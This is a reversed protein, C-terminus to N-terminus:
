HGSFHFAAHCGRRAHRRFRRAHCLGPPRAPGHRNASELRHEAHGAFLLCPPTGTGGLCGFPAGTGQNLNVVFGVNAASSISTSSYAVLALNTDPDVGISYPIPAPSAQGQLAGSIDVTAATVPNPAGPIPVISVSQSGYNVVAVSHNTRNVSLGTPIQGVAVPGGIPTLTGPAISYFQVANAGTLAVVVVGLQPDIDMASPNAGTAVPAGATPPATSYDPFVAVTSVSPNNPAPLPPATRSVTLPYLGPPGAASAPFFTSLRRSNSTTGQPVQNGQFIATALTGGPGFYGGDITVPFQSQNAGQVVSTPFTSVVTPRVPVVNVVFNGGAAPTVPQGPDTVSVTYKSVTSPLDAELLRVRAGTSPPNPTTTNPIPFLVKVQGSVSTFSKQGGNQDTFTIISASSINPADLYVDWLAAGQPAFNPTVGNFSIPGGTIITVTGTVFRTNDAKSTGVITVNAPTTSANAPTSATPVTAPATYIAGTLGSSAISGCTPSCTPLAPYNVAAATTTAATPISQTVTWVVGQSQLDNTLVATFTQQENTPVTATTPTLNLAIGSDLFLNVVGTKKTDAQSQATLVITLGPYKTQDPVKSPATFTATGTTEQNSLVGLSGDAPCATAASTTPTTGSVTTTTYQCPQWNVATNTSGSVIAVLTTSQGLILVQGASSTVAVTVVNANSSGGCGVLGFSFLLAATLAVGRAMSRLKM